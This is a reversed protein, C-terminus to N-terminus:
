VDREIVRLVQYLLLMKVALFGLCAVLHCRYLLVLIFVFILALGLELRILIKICM